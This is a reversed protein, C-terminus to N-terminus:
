REELAQMEKNQILKSKALHVTIDKLNYEQRSRLKDNESAQKIDWGLYTRTHTHKQRTRYISVVAFLRSFGINVEFIHAKM